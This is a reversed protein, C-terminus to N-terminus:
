AAFTALDSEAFANFQAQSLADSFVQSLDLIPVIDNQHKFCSPAIHPWFFEEPLACMMDDGVEVRQPEGVIQLAGYTRTCRKLDVYRVLMLTSPVPSHERLGLLIGLDVVPAMHEGWMYLRNAHAPAHPVDLFRVADTVYEVFAHLGVSCARGSDLPLLVATASTAM